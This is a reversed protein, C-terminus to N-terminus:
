ARPRILSLVVYKQAHDFIYQLVKSGKYPLAVGKLLGWRFKGSCAKLVEQGVIGGIAACVPNLVGRAGLSLRLIVDQAWVFMDLATRVDVLASFVM